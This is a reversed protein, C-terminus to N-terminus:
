CDQSSQPRRNQTLGPHERVVEVKEVHHRVRIRHHLLTDRPRKKTIWLRFPAMMVRFVTEREPVAVIEEVPGMDILKWSPLGFPNTLESSVNCPYRGGHIRNHAILFEWQYVTILSM